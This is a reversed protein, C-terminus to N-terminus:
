IVTFAQSTVSAGNFYIDVTYTGPTSPMLPINIRGFGRYWMSTWTRQQTENSVINGESDRIVFLTVIEDPSTNYEHNLRVAFSASEGVTFTTKYDAEPVDHQTWEPNEPTKCMRFDMDSASLLYGSFVEAAPADYTCTGGFVTNGDATQLSFSYQCGPIQPSLTASNTACPLVFQQTSGNTSYMLLWGNAPATGEFDWRINLVNRSSADVEITPVTVSNASVYTRTGQTMGAANVEVTYASSVDLDEFTAKTDSVTVTKDYGMSNYCRVVWSDVQVGEPAAWAATLAGNHFGLIQLNEAFVLNSATYTVTDTGVIYLAATPAIRFVYEKGVTLGSITVMHGTFVTSKEEEGETSYIVKWEGTEPGQVTFNLIVTGNEAGTVANIGVISTQKSTIHVGSTAGILKHFGSIEVQIDYRTDPNLGEFHAKGGIVGQKRTDGYTDTCSITLLEDDIETNLSVTLRDEYGDLSIGLVTQLYINQYYLYGGFALGTLVALCVLAMIWGRRKKRPLAPSIDEPEELAVFAEQVPEEAAGSEEVASSENRDSINEEPAPEPQPIEPIPVDIPEPVVVPEPLEHAILDEAQALIQSVEQTVGLEEQIVAAESTYDAPSHEEAAEEAQESEEAIEEESEEVQESEETIEEEAEEVQESEESPEEETEEVQESEEFNEEAAEEVPKSAEPAEEQCTELAQIEEPSVGVSELAEDVEALIEHTSPEGETEEPIPDDMLVEPMQPQAPAIIPTANVSHSQMYNVLAQGMQLPDQWRVEPNPDCAKLIIQAMESDAYQPASLPTEPARGEFPLAGGNYAQYLILGAAYIDMTSNLASYADTIEPPTYTSLYREPLSAYELSSLPIFGLDGIRYEQDESVYINDPKLDVYLYGSRRCVALAACMDLGLNVAALHTLPEHRFQRELTVRYQGSLYIEYGIEGDDMPVVQWNHYPIFGELRSLRQLVVAEEVVDEALDRFYDLASASDRFAGALLLADLKTQSAPVSIIKVIYKDNSETHMAPCCRVGDHDSIPDGMMFGDLLPSILKPESM